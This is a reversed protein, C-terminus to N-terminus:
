FAYGFYLGPWVLVRGAMPLPWDADNNRVVQEETLFLAYLTARYFFGGNSRFEYGLGAYPITETQVPDSNEVLRRLLPFTETEIPGSTEDPTRVLVMGGTVFPSANGLPLYFKGGVPILAQTESSGSFGVQLGVLPTIMRQYAFSGLLGKGVLEFGVDNPHTTRAQAHVSDLSPNSLLVLTTYLIITKTSM